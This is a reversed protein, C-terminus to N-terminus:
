STSCRVKLGPTTPGFGVRSVMLNCETGDDLPRPCRGKLAVARTRIGNPGGYLGAYSLQYLLASTIRLDATRTRGGAGACKLFPRGDSDNPPPGKTTDERPLLSPAM